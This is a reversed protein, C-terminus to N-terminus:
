VVKEVHPTADGGRRAQNPPPNSEDVQTQMMLQTRETTASVSSLGSLMARWGAPRLTATNKARNSASWADRRRMTPDKSYEPCCVAAADSQAAVTL